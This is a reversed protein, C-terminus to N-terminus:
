EAVESPMAPKETRYSAKEGTVGSQIVPTSAVNLFQPIFVNGFNVIERGNKVVPSILIEQWFKLFEPETFRLAEKDFVQV